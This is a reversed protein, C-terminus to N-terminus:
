VMDAATALESGTTAQTGGAELLTSVPEVLGRFVGTPMALTDWRPSITRAHRAYHEVRIALFGYLGGRFDFLQERPLPSRDGVVNYAFVLLGSFEAGFIQQWRALSWLDDRTSWNKWYQRGEGSPFRRGKVDVLWREGQPSTVIFDLSKLTADGLTTRRAEDVAVYPIGRERLFGEFAAEYHNDRNAM